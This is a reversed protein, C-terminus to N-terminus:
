FDSIIIMARVQLTHCVRGLTLRATVINGLKVSEKVSSVGGRHFLSCLIVCHLNYSDNKLSM